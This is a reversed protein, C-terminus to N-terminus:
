LGDVPSRVGSTGRNLVHTYIMTTKVDKHGLLEQVTRIDYGGELLHIAFSHRFTHCTAAEDNRRKRSCRERSKSGSIRRHLTYSKILGISDLIDKIYLRWERKSM